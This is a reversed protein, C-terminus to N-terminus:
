LEKRYLFVVHQTNPNQFQADPVWGASELITREITNTEQVTALAVAFGVNKVAHTRIGLLATGIGINRFDEEVRVHHFICVGSCGPMPLIGFSAVLQFRSGIKLRLSYDGTYAKRTLILKGEPGCLEELVWNDQILNDLATWLRKVREVPVDQGLIPM